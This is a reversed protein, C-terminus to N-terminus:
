ILSHVANPSVSTMPEVELEQQFWPHELVQKASFRESEPCLIHEMLDILKDTAMCNRQPGYRKALYRLGMKKHSWKEPTACFKAHTAVTFRNDHSGINEWLLVAMNFGWLAHGMTWIDNKAANYHEYNELEVGSCKAYAERNNFCMEPSMFPYTGVKGQNLMDSEWAGHRLTVGFDIIKGELEEGNSVVVLNELKLDRHVIGLSHMQALAEFVGRFIKKARLEWPSAVDAFKRPGMKILSKKWQRWHKERHKDVHSFLEVGEEMYYYLNRADMTAAEFRVINKLNLSNLYRHTQIESAVDDNWKDVGNKKKEWKSLSIVKVVM